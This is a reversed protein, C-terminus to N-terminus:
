LYQLFLEIETSKLGQHGVPDSRTLFVPDSDSSVEFVSDPDAIVQQLVHQLNHGHPM